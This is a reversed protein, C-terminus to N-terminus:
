VPSVSCRLTGECNAVNAIFKCLFLIPEILKSDQAEFGAIIETNYSFRRFQGLKLMDTVIFNHTRHVCVYLSM